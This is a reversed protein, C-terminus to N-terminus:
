KELKDLRTWIDYDIARHRALSGGMVGVALVIGGIIAVVDGGGGAGIGLVIAGIAGVLAPVGVEVHGREDDRIRQYAGILQNM